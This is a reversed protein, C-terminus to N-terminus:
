VMRLDDVVGPWWWGDAVPVGDARRDRGTVRVDPVTM